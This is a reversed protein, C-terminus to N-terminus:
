TAPAIAWAPLGLAVQRDGSDQKVLLRRRERRQREVDSVNSDNRFSSEGVFDPRLVVSDQEVASSRTSQWESRTTSAWRHRRASSPPDETSSEPRRRQQIRTGNSERWRPRPAQPANSEIPSQPAENNAWDSVDGEYEPDGALSYSPRGTNPRWPAQIRVQRESRPWDERSPWNTRARNPWPKMGERKLIPARESVAARQLSRWDTQRPASALQEPQQPHNSDRHDGAHASGVTEFRREYQRPAALWDRTRSQVAHEDDAQWHPRGAFAPSERWQVRQTHRREPTRHRRNQEVRGEHAIEPIAPEFSGDCEDDYGGTSDVDWHERVPRRRPSNQEM